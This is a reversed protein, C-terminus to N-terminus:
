NIISNFKNAFLVQHQPLVPADWVYCCGNVCGSMRNQPSNIHDPGVYCHLFEHTLKGKFAQVFSCFTSGTHNGLGCVFIKDGDSGGHGKGNMLVGVADITFLGSSIDTAASIIKTTSCSVGENIGTNDDCGLNQKVNRYHFKAKSTDIFCTPDFSAFTGMLAARSIAADHLFLTLGDRGKFGDGLIIIDFYGDGARETSTFVRADYITTDIVITDTVFDEGTQEQIIITIKECGLFYGGLLIGIGALLILIIRTNKM